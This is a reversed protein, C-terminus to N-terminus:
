RKLNPNPVCIEQSERYGECADQSEYNCQISQESKNLTCWPQVGILHYSVLLFFM